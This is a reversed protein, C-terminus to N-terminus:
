FYGFSTHVNKKYMTCHLGESIKLQFLYEYTQYLIRLKYQWIYAIHLMCINTLSSENQNVSKWFLQVNKKTGYAAAFLHRPSQYKPAWLLVNRTVSTLTQKNNTYLSVM